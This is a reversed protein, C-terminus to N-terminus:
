EGANHHRCQPEFNKYWIVLPALYNLGSVSLHSVQSTNNIVKLPQVAFSKQNQMLELHYCMLKVNQSVEMSFALAFPFHIVITAGFSFFHLCEFTIHKVCHNM